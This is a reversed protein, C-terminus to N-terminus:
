QTKSGKLKKFELVRLSLSEFVPPKQDERISRVAGILLTNRGQSHFETEGISGLSILSKGTHFAAQALRPNQLPSTLLIPYPASWLTVFGEGYDGYTHIGMTYHHHFFVNNTKCFVYPGMEFGWCSGQMSIQM